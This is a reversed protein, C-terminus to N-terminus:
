HKSKIEQLGKFIVQQVGPMLKKREILGAEGEIVKYNYIIQDASDVNPNTVTGSVKVYSWVITVEASCVTFEGSVTDYEGSIEATLTCGNWTGTVTGSVTIVNELVEEPLNNCNEAQITTFPSFATFTM